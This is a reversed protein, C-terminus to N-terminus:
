DCTAGDCTSGAPLSANHPVVPPQESLAPTLPRIGAPQYNTTTQAPNSIPQPRSRYHHAPLSPPSPRAPLGTNTPLTGQSPSDRNSRRFKSPRETGGYLSNSTPRPVPATGHPFVAGPPLVIQAGSKYLYSIGELEGLNFPQPLHPVVAPPSFYTPQTAYSSSRAVGAFASHATNTHNPAMTLQRRDRAQQIFSENKRKREENLSPPVQYARPQSRAYAPLFDPSELLQKRTKGEWGAILEDDNMPGPVKNGVLADRAKPPALDFGTGPRAMMQGWAQDNYTQRKSLNCQHGPGGFHRCESCPDNQGSRHLKDCERLQQVCRVCATGSVNPINHEHPRNQYLTPDLNPHHDLKCTNRTCEGSAFHKCPVKARVKCTTTTDYM